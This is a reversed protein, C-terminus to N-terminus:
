FSLPPPALSHNPVPLSQRSRTRAQSPLRSARRPLLADQAERPSSGRKSFERFTSIVVIVLKLHGVRCQLDQDPNEKEAVKSSTSWAGKQDNM